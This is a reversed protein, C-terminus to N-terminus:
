CRSWSSVANEYDTLDGDTDHVRANRLMQGYSVGYQTAHTKNTTVGNNGNIADDMSGVGDKVDDMGDTFADGVDDIGNTVANGVDGALSGDNPDNRNGKDGELINGSQNTSPTQNGTTANSPQDDRGCASLMLVLTLSALLLTFSRRKM